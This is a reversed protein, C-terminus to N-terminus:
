NCEARTVRLTCPYSNERHMSLSSKAPWYRLQDRRTREAVAVRAKRGLKGVSLLAFPPVLLSSTHANSLHNINRFTKCVSIPSSETQIWGGKARASMWTTATTRKKRKECSYLTVWCEWRNSYYERNQVVNNMFQNHMCRSLISKKKKERFNFVRDNYQCFAEEGRM